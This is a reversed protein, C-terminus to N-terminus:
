HGSALTKNFLLFVAISRLPEVDPQLSGINCSETSFEIAHEGGVVKEVHSSNM